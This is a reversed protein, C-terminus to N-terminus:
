AIREMQKVMGFDALPRGVNQYRLRVYLRTAPNETFVRLRLIRLRRRCAWAHVTELLFTRRVRRPSRAGTAPRPYATRGRRQQHAARRHTPPGTRIQEGVATLVCGGNRQGGHESATAPSKLSQNLEDPLLWARRYAM